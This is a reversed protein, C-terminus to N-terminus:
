LPTRMVVVFACMALAGATLRRDRGLAALPLLWTVYWPMLWASTALMALTAWGAATLWHMGRWTRALLVAFAVAFLALALTRIGPTIGGFGLWRGV